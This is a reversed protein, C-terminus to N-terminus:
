RYREATIRGYHQPAGASYFLKSNLYYTAGVAINVYVTPTPAIFDDDTVIQNYRTQDLTGIGAGIASPSIGFIQSGTLTAANQAIGVVGTLRWTGATLAISTVAGYSGSAAIGTSTAASVESAIVEGITSAPAASGDTIPPIEDISAPAGDAPPIQLYTTM